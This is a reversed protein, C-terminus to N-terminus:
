YFSVCVTFLGFCFLVVFMALITSSFLILKVSSNWMSKCPDPFLKNLSAM